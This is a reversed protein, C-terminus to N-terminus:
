AIRYWATMESGSTYGGLQNQSVQTFQVAVNYPVVQMGNSQQGTFLAQQMGTLSWQGQVMFAPTVGQFTGNPRVELNMQVPVMGMPTPMNINVQWTGPLITQLAQSPGPEQTSTDDEELDEGPKRNDRDEPRMTPGLMKELKTILLNVDSNFSEHEIEMGNRRALSALEKPLDKEKPMSAGQVLLPIVRIDRELATLVELRVFDNPDELRRQGEKDMITLWAPGIVALLVDCSTVAEQIKQEFDVGLEITYIDIFINDQGFHNSLRESLWGASGGSDQRRYSIFIRGTM